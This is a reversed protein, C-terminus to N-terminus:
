KKLTERVRKGFAIRCDEESEKAAPELFPRAPITVNHGRGARNTGEEHVAGYGVSVGVVAESDGVEHDVSRLLTGQDWLPTMGGQRRASPSKRKRSEKTSEALPAWEPRGTKIGLKVNREVILACDTLGERTADDMRRPLRHLFGGLEDMGFTLSHYAM